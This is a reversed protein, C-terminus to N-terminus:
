DLCMAWAKVAVAQGEAYLSSCEVKSKCCLADDSNGDVCPNGTRDISAQIWVHTAQVISQGRITQWHMLHVCGLPTCAVVNPRRSAVCHTTPMVMWVLTVQAILQVKITQWCMLHVCRLPTFAVANPRSITPRPSAVCCTMPV